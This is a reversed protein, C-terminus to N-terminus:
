AYFLIIAMKKHIYTKKNVIVKTDDLLGQANDIDKASLTETAGPVTVIQNEGNESVFILAMGTKQGDVRSTHKTCVNSKLLNEEYKEAWEDGGGGLKSILATKSGM